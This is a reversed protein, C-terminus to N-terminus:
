TPITGIKDALSWANRSEIGYAPSSGTDSMSVDFQFVYRLSSYPNSTLYGSWVFGTSTQSPPSHVVTESHNELSFKPCPFSMVNPLLGLLEYIRKSITFPPGDEAKSLNCNRDAEEFGLKSNFSKVMSLRKITDTYRVSIMEDM